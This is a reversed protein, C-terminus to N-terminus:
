SWVPIPWNPKITVPDYAAVSGEATAWHKGDKNRRFRYVTMEGAALFSILYVDAIDISHLALFKSWEERDFVSGPGLSEQADANSPYPLTGRM